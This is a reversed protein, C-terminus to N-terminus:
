PFYGGLSVNSRDDDSGPLIVGLGYSVNNNPRGEGLQTLKYGLIEQFVIRM